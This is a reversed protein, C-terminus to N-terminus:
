FLEFSLESDASSWQCDSVNGSEIHVRRQSYMVYKQSLKKILDEVGARIDANLDTDKMFRNMELLMEDITEAQQRIVDGYQASSIASRISGEINAQAAKKEQQQQMNLKLLDQYNTTMESLNSVAAGLTKQQGSLSDLIDEQETTEKGESESVAAHVTLENLASQVLPELRNTVSETESALRRVESSIVSFERGATGARASAISANVAIMKIERSFNEIERLEQRVGDIAEAISAMANRTTRIEESVFRGVEIAKQLDAELRRKDVEHDAMADELGGLHRIAENCKDRESILTSEIETLHTMFQISTENTEYAINKTLDRLLDVFRPLHEVYSQGQILNKELDFTKHTTM